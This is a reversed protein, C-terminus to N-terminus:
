KGFSPCSMERVQNLRHEKVEELNTNASVITLQSSLSCEMRVVFDERDTSTPIQLICHADVLWFVDRVLEKDWGGTALDILENISHM